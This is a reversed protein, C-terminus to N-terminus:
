GKGVTRQVKEEEVIFHHVTLITSRKFGRGIWAVKLNQYEFSVSVTSAESDGYLKEDNCPAAWIGAALIM